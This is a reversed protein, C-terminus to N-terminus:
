LCYVLRGCYWHVRAGSYGHVLALRPPPLRHATSLSSIEDSFDLLRERQAWGHPMVGEAPPWLIRTLFDVVTLRRDVPSRTLLLKPLSSLTFGAAAAGPRSSENLINGICLIMQLLGALKSSSLIENLAATLSAIDAAVAAVQDPWHHRFLLSQTKALIRPVASMQLMVQEVPGLTDGNRLRVGRIRRVEADTPCLEVLAQLRSPSLTPDAPDASMVALCLAEGISLPAPAPAPSPSPAPTAPTPEVTRSSNEMGVPVQGASDSKTAGSGTKNAVACEKEQDKSEDKEGSEADGGGTGAITSKGRDQDLTM